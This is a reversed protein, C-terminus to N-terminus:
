ARILELDSRDNRAHDVVAAGKLQADAGNRIRHPCGLAAGKAEEGLRDFLLLEEILHLLRQLHRSRREAADM